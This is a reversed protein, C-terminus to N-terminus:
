NHDELKNDPMVLVGLPSWFLGLADHVPPKATVFSSPESTGQSAARHRSNSGM